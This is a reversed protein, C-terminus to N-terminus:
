VDQTRFLAAAAVLPVVTWALVGGLLLLASGGTGFTSYLYAGLPGLVQLDPDLSLVALIRVSEVPNGLTIALLSEGSGTVLLAFGMAALDYFIVFVFWALVAIALARARSDSVVSILMGLSLTGTALIGALLVFLLFHGFGAVPSVLGILLGAIGFGLAVAMWVAIALGLYKGLLLESSSLPQARLTTLTGREREGAIAGAGLVLTLLPVLLLCLNVLSATTRDFGQVGVDGREQVMALALAVIAFTASFAILWRSRVADRLEKRLIIFTASM